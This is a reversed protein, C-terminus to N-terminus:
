LTCRLVVRDHQVAVSILRRDLRPTLRNPLGYLLGGGVVVLASCLQDTQLRRHLTMILARALTLALAPMQPLTGGPM